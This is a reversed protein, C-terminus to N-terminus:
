CINGGKVNHPRFHSQVVQKHPSQTLPTRQVPIEASHFTKAINLHCGNINGHIPNSVAKIDRSLTPSSLQHKINHRGTYLIVLTRVQLAWMVICQHHQFFKCSFSSERTGLPNCRIHITACKGNRQVSCGVNSPSSSISSITPFSRIQRRDRM